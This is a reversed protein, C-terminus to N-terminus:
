NSQNNKVYQKRKKYILINTLKLKQIIINIYKNLIYLTYPYILRLLLKEFM